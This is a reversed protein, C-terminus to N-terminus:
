RTESEMGAEARPTETRPTTRRGPRRLLTVAGSVSNVSVKGSGEGVLERRVVFGPIGMEKLQRRYDKEMELSAAYVKADFEAFAEDETAVEGQGSEAVKGGLARLVDNVAKRGEIRKARESLM